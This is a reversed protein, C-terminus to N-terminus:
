GAQNIILNDVWWQLADSGSFPTGGGTLGTNGVPLGASEAWRRATEKNVRLVHGIDPWGLLLHARVPRVTKVEEYALPAVQSSIAESTKDVIPLPNGYGRRMYFSRPM